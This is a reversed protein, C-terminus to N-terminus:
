AIMPVIVVEKIRLGGRNSNPRGQASLISVDRHGAQDCRYRAVATAAAAGAFGAVAAFSNAEADGFAVRRIPGPIGGLVTLM